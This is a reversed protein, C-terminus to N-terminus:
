DIVEELAPGIIAQFDPTEHHELEPKSVEVAPYGSVM